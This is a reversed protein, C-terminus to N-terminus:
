KLHLLVCRGLNDYYLWFEKYRWENNCFKWYGVYIQQSLDTKM